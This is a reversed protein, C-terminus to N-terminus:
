RAPAFRLGVALSASTGPSVHPLAGSGLAGAPGTWPEVCIFPKEPLTWLVLTSLEPTANLEIRSGDGRHLTAAPGHELLTVDVEGAGFGIPTAARVEGSLRDKLQAASSPVRARAKTPLPVSFYPHLGVHLPFPVDGTNEFRWELVLQGDALSVDFTSVFDFPFGERTAPSSALRLSLRATADDSIADVVEFAQRRALGHQPQVVRRGSVVVGEAPLPGANPFLVPIGGRVNKTADVLTEEDLFLLSEAGVRWHTVLAGRGPVVRVSTDTEEDLLEWTELEAPGKLRDIRM